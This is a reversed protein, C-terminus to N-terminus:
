QLYRKTRVLSLLVYDSQQGQYKDVTQVAGPMGFIPSNACRQTVGFCLSVTSHTIAMADAHIDATCTYAVAQLALRQKRLV